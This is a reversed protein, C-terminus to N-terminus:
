ALRKCRAAGILGLLGAGLLLLSSPEPVAPTVAVTGITTITDDAPGGSFPPYDGQCPSSFGECALAALVTGLPRPAFASPLLTYPGLPLRNSSNENLNFSIKTDGIVQSLLLLVDGNGFSVPDTPLRPAVPPIVGLDGSTFTAAHRDRLQEHYQGM